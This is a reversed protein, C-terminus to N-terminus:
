LLKLRFYPGLVKFAAGPIIAAEKISSEGLPSLKKEVVLTFSLYLLNPTCSAYSHLFNLPKFWLKYKSKARPSPTFPPTNPYEM